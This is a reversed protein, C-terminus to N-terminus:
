ERGRADIEVTAQNKGPTGEDDRTKRLGFASLLRHWYLKAAIALGAIGGLLLQLLMSGTGADLYAHAPTPTTIMLTAIALGCGYVHLTRKMAAIEGKYRDV